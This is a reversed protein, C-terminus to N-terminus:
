TFTSTKLYVKLVWSITDGVKSAAILGTRAFEACALTAGHWGPEATTPLDDGESYHVQYIELIADLLQDVMYGPVRSGLRAM